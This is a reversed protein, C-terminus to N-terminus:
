QPADVQKYEDDASRTELAVLGNETARHDGGQMCRLVVGSKGRIM